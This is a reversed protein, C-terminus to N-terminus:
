GGGRSCQQGGQCSIPDGHYDGHCCGQLWPLPSNDHGHRRALTKYRCVVSVSKPQKNTKDINLVTSQSPLLQTIQTLKPTGVRNSTKLWSFFLLSQSTKSTVQLTEQDDTAKLLDKKQCALMILSCEQGFRQGKRNPVHVM